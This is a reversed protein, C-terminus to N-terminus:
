FSEHEMQTDRQEPFCGLRHQKEARQAKSPLIQETPNHWWVMGQVTM